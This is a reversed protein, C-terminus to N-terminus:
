KSAVNTDDAFLVVVDSNGAFHIDNIYMLFLLPGLVAGQPVATIIPLWDSPAGNVCVCSLKESLYSQSWINSKCRIGYNELKSLIKHDPRGFAKKM